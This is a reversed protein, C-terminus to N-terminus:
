LSWFRYLRVGGEYGGQVAPLHSELFGPGCPLAQGAPVIAYQGPKFVWLGLEIPGIQLGFLATKVQHHKVFNPHPWQWLEVAWDVLRPRVRIEVWGVRMRGSGVCM